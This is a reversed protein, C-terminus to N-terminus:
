LVMIKTPDFLIKYIDVWSNEDEPDIRVLRDEYYKIFKQMEVTPKNGIERYPYVIKVVYIDKGAILSSKSDEIKDIFEVDDYYDNNFPEMLYIFDDMEGIVFSGEPIYEQIEKMVNYRGVLFQNNHIYGIFFATIAFIFILFIIVVKFYSYIHLLEDIKHAALIMILPVVVLLYRIGFILDLIRGEWIYLDFMSYFILAAFVPFLLLWKPKMRSFLSFLIMGPYIAGLIIVFRFFNKSIISINFILDNQSITYGTKFPSGYLNTNIILILIIFLIIGINLSLFNMLFNKLDNKHRYIKISNIFFILCIIGVPIIQTYRTLISLGWFLGAVVYGRTRNQILFYIGALFATLTYQESFLTRSYYVFAPFFAYFFTFITSIELKKLIKHFIIVGLIYMFFTAVFGGQWGLITFTSMIISSGIMCIPAYGNGYDISKLGEGFDEYIIGKRPLNWATRLYCHEDNTGYFLPFFIVFCITMLVISLILSNKEFFSFLININFHKEFIKM